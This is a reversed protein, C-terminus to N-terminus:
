STVEPMDFEFVQHEKGEHIVTVPNLKFLGGGTYNCTGPKDGNAEFAERKAGMWRGVCSFAVGGEQAGADKWDQVTAVHGCCPCVFRWKMADTGFRQEAEAIWEAHTLKRPQTKSM